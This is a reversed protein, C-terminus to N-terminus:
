FRRLCILSKQKQLLLFRTEKSEGIETSINMILQRLSDERQTKKMIKVLNPNKVNNDVKLNIEEIKPTDKVERKMLRKLARKRRKIKM